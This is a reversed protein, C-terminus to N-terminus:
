IQFFFPFNRGKQLKERDYILRPLHQGATHRNNQRNKLSCSSIRFFEEEGKSVFALFFVM